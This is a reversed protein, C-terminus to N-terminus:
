QISNTSQEESEYVGIPRFNPVTLSFGAIQSILWPPLKQFQSFVTFCTYTTLLKFIRPALASVLLSTRYQDLDKSRTPDLIQFQSIVDPIISMRLCCPVIPISNENNQGSNSTTSITTFPCYQTKRTVQNREEAKLSCPPDVHSLIM